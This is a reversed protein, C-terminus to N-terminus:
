DFPDAPRWRSYFGQGLRDSRSAPLEASLEASLRIHVNETLNPLSKRDSAAKSDGLGAERLQM